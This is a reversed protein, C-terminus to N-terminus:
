IRGTVRPARDERRPTTAKLTMEKRDRMVRIDFSTGPEINRLAQTVDRANRVSRGNVATIVDGARLGAQAALSDAEVSSVLAGESVGFYGALQDSLPTLSVGLAPRTRISLEPLVLDLDLDLDPRIVPMRSRFEGLSEPVVKITQRDTGRVIVAEVERRPPTEQVIRTFHRVSRVRERDFDIVIDGAEFGARSAPSDDRVSEIYVGIPQALKAKAADDATVDRVTVGISSGAGQLMLFPAADGRTGPGQASVPSALAVAVLCAAVILTRTM